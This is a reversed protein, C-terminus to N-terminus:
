DDASCGRRHLEKKLLMTNEVPTVEDRLLGFSHDRLIRDHAIKVERDTLSAVEERSMREM